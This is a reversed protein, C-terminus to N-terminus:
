PVLGDCRSGALGWHRLAAARGGEALVQAFVARQYREPWREIREPLSLRVSRAYAASAGHAKLARALVYPAGHRWNPMLQFIGAAGSSANVARPNSHSERAEVCAGFARWREPLVAAAAVVRSGAARSPRGPVRGASVAHPASAPPTPDTLVEVAAAVVTPIM